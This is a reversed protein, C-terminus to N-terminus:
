VDFCNVGSVAMYLVRVASYGYVRTYAKAVAISNCVYYIQRM